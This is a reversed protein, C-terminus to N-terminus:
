VSPQGPSAIEKSIAHLATNRSSSVPWSPQLTHEMHNTNLQQAALLTKGPSASTTNLLGVGREGAATRAALVSCFVASSFFVADVVSESSARARLTPRITRSERRTRADMARGGEGERRPEAVTAARATQM